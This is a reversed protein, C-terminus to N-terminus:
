IFSIYFFFLSTRNFVEKGANVSVPVSGLGLQADGVIQNTQNLGVDLECVRVATPCM